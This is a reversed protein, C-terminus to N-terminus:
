KNKTFSREIIYYKTANDTLQSYPIYNLKIAINDQEAKSFITEFLKIIIDRNRISFLCLLTYNKIKPNISECTYFQIFDRFLMKYTYKEGNYSRVDEGQAKKKLPELSCRFVWTEIYLKSENYEESEEHSKINQILEDILNCITKQKHTM